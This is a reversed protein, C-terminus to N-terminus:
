HSRSPLASIENTAPLTGRSGSPAFRLMVLDGVDVRLDSPVRATASTRGDELPASFSVHAWQTMDPRHEGRARPAYVGPQVEIFVQEVAVLYSSGDVQESRAYGQVIIIASAIAVAILLGRM